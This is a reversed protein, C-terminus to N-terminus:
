APDDSPLDRTMWADPRQRGSYVAQIWLYTPYEYYFILHPYGNVKRKRYGGRYPVGIRPQRRILLVEAEVADQFLGGGGGTRGEYYVIEDLLEQEAEQGFRADLM